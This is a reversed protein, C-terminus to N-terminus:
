FLHRLFGTLYRQEFERKTWRRMSLRGNARPSLLYVQAPVTEGSRLLLVECFQRQYESGEFADLKRWLKMDIGQYLYGQVQQGPELRLGPYVEGRLYYCGYGSLLAPQSLRKVGCVQKFVHTLQLTGYCFLRSSASM